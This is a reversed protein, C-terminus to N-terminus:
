WVGALTNGEHWLKRVTGHGFVYFVQINVGAIMDTVYLLPVFTM